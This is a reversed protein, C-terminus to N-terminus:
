QWGDASSKEDQLVSSQVRQVTGGLIAEGWAKAVRM